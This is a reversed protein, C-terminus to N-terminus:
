KRSRNGSDHFNRNDHSNIIYSNENTGGDQDDFLLVIDASFRIVGKSTSSNEQVSESFSFCTGNMLSANM